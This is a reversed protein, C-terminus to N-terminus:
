LTFRVLDKWDEEEAQRFRLAKILTRLSFDKLTVKVENLYQITEEKVGESVNDFEQLKPAIFRMRELMESTTFDLSLLMSRSRISQPIKDMTRNSIFLVKGQFEFSRELDLKDVPYSSEWSVVRNQTTDLVAKLWNITTENAFVSDADDFVVFSDKSKNRHLVEYLGSMAVHGSIREYEIGTTDLTSFVTYSKGTGGQGTVIAASHYGKVMLQVIKQTMEFRRNISFTHISDVSEAKVTEGPNGSDKWSPDAAQGKMVKQPYGWYGNAKKFPGVAKSLESLNKEKLIVKVEDGDKLVATAMGDAGRDYLIFEVGSKRRYNKKKRM